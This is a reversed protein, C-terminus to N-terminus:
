TWVRELADLLESSEWRERSMVVEVTARVRAQVDPSVVTVIDQALGGYKGLLDAARLRDAASASRKARITVGGADRVARLKGRCKPCNAHELVDVLRVRVTEVVAGDAVARLVARREDFDVRCAERIVSPPRGSGGRNGPMGGTALAGGHPQPVLAPRGVTTEATSEASDTANQAPRKM